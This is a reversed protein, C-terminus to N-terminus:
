RGGAREFRLAPLEASGTHGDWRELLVYFQEEWFYDGSLAGYRPRYGLM